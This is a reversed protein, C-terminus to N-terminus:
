TKAYICKQMGSIIIVHLSTSNIPITADMQTLELCVPERDSGSLASAEEVCGSIQGLVCM